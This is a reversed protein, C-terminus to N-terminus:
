GSAQKRQPLLALAATGLLTLAAGYVFGAPESVYNWLFGVLASSILDGFSNVTALVGYGTARREVPLYAAALARETADVIGIYIGALAFLAVLAYINSGAFIFGLCM